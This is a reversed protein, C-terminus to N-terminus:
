MQYSPLASVRVFRRSYTMHKGTSADVNLPSRLSHVQLCTMQRIGLYFRVQSSGRALSAIRLLPNDPMKRFASAAQVKRQLRLADLQPKQINSRRTLTWIRIARVFVGHPTKGGAIEAFSSDFQDMMDHM